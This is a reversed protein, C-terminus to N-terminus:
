DNFVDMAKDLESSIIKAYVQTEKIASHGMLKSVKDISIGKRLARTAWTHRSTHFSIHKEIGVKPAIIQLNKNIYSTACSIAHDVARLNGTDLANDLMPFIYDNPNAKKVEYKRILELGKNPVKISIQSGTKKITFNINSGDFDPWRLQLVDSVRLGGAYAAFVFMDKHLELRTGPTAKFNEFLLLEDETLYCRETKETKLKYKNFPNSEHPILEQRYADNFVKRIFKFDKGVTNTKNKLEERLYKEYKALFEPTIDQFCINAEKLYKRLKEIVSKNKDYTGIKGAANYEEVIADAFPFFDTPKKGYIKDRLQRGTLSKQATDHEFVKDQLEAHKNSLFSNFRKSNKHKPKVKNKTFDWLDMNIMIGSSIYSIKRDKIIRFHIPAENKKNLKDKRYVTSVTAM